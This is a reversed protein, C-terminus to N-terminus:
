SDFTKFLKFNPFLGTAMKEEPLKWSISSIKRFKSGISSSPGDSARRTSPLKDNPKVSSNVASHNFQAVYGYSEQKKEEDLDLAPNVFYLGKTAPENIRNKSSEFENPVAESNIMDEKNLKSTINNKSYDKNEIQNMAIDTGNSNLVPPVVRSSARSRIKNENGDSGFVKKRILMLKNPNVTMQYLQRKFSAANAFFLDSEFRFIKIGGLEFTNHYAKSRVFIDSENTASMTYGRVFLSQALIILLNWGIGVGLGVALDLVLVSLCTLVWGLFDWKQVAWYFKLEKVHMILPIVGVIVIAALCSKPLNQFLPGLGVIVIFVLAAAVLSSLQTKGGTSEFIMTRPPSQATPFCHFFSSIIHVLGYAMFEQNADVNYRYKRALIKAMSLCEVCGVVVITICGVFFSGDIHPLLAPVAPAPFGRPIKGVIKMHYKENLDAIYCVFTGVIVVILEAPIPIFLKKRYKVNIFMKIFVLFVISISAAIIDVPNTKPLSLIIDKLQRPLTFLGPYQGIKFGLAPPFQSVATHIATATMYASNFPTSMLSSIIGLRCVGMGFQTLGVVLSATTAIAITLDMNLAQTAAAPSKTTVLTANVYNMVNTTYTTNYNANVHSSSVSYLAAYNPYQETVLNGALLSIVAVTGISIGHSSGFIFYILVPFFSSYLGFAPLVQVVTSYGLCQPIHITGLTLGSVIDGFLWQRWKYHRMRPICPALRKAFTKCKESTLKFKTSHSIFNNFHDQMSLREKEVPPYRNKFSQQSYIQRQLQVTPM